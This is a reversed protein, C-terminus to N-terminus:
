HWAERSIGADRADNDTDSYQGLDCLLKLQIEWSGPLFKQYRYKLSM